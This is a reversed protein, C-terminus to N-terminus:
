CNHVLVSHLSLGVPSTVRSNDLSLCKIGFKSIIIGVSPNTAM